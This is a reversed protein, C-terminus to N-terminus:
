GHNAEIARRLRRVHRNFAEDETMAIQRPRPLDIAVEEVITAPRRGMVLVRDSLFAAERISHTVFVVTKRFTQWLRLLEVGMEDRTIADLASFPEDMLLLGPEHVLARCIAARQKMGGSLQHPLADAFQDIRAMRLLDRARPEYTQRSLGQFEIPLLVNDLVSRWPLLVPSQFVVGTDRRPGTVPEGHIAVTGGSARGLGAVIMLLTSKGCGSPGLLSVFEGDAVDLSVSRIAELDGYLKRVDRIALAPTGAPGPRADAPADAM